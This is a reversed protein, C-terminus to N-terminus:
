ASRAQAESASGQSALHVAISVRYSDRSRALACTRLHAGRAQAACALNALKETQLGDNRPWGSEPAMSEVSASLVDIGSDRICM